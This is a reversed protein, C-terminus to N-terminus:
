SEPEGEWSTEVYRIGDVSPKILNKTATVTVSWNVEFVTQGEAFPVERTQPGESGLLGALGTPGFYQGLGGSLGTSFSPALPQGMISIPTSAGGRPLPAGAGIGASSIESSAFGTPLLPIKFPELKLAKAAVRVTSIWHVRQRLKKSFSPPYIYFTGNRRIDAGAPMTQLESGYEALIQDRVLAQFFLTNENEELFFCRSAADRISTVYDETVDAVVTNIMDKLEELSRLTRVNPFGKTREKVAKSLLEDGTVLTVRCLSVSRPSTEILQLFTEAVIADRFGKEHKGSEFPPRRAAADGILRNWDVNSTELHLLNIGLNLVQKEIASKVLGDLHEEAIGLHHGLLKELKALPQLLDRGAELMQYSRELKVIEPVYWSVKVDSHRRAEEISRVVEQRLLDSASGTFLQNTDLVIRLELVKQRTGQRRVVAREGKNDTVGRGWGM